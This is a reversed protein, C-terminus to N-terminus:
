CLDISLIHACYVVNELMKHFTGATAIAGCKEETVGIPIVAVMDTVDVALVISGLLLFLGPLRVMVRNRHMARPEDFLLTHVCFGEVPHIRLDLGLHLFRSLERHIASIRVHTFHLLVDIGSTATRSSVSACAIRSARASSIRRSGVTHTIPSSTASAPVGNLTREPSTSSNPVFRTSSVGIESAPKVPRATPAAIVPIRGTTSIMNPSKMVRVM